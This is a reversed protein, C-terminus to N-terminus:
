KVNGSVPELSAEGGDSHDFFDAWLEVVVVVVM